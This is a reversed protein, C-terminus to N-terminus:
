YVGEPQEIEQMKLKKERCKHVHESLKAAFEDAQWGHGSPYMHLDPMKDPGFRDLGKLAPTIAAIAIAEM